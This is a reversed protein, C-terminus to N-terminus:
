CKCLRSLNIKIRCLGDTSKCLGEQKTLCDRADEKSCPMAIEVWGNQQLHEKKEKNKPEILFNQVDLLLQLKENEEKLVKNEEELEAIRKERPEAGALYAEKITVNHYWRAGKGSCLHEKDYQYAEEELEEETM